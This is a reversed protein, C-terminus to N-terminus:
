LFFWPGSLLAPESATEAELGSQIALVDDEQWVTEFKM